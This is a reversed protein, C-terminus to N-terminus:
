PAKGYVITEARDPDRDDGARWLLAAFAGPDAPTEYVYFTREPQTRHRLVMWWDSLPPEVYAGVLRSGHGVMAVRWWKHHELEAALGKAERETM